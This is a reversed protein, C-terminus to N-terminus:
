IAKHVLFFYSFIIKMSEYHKAKNKLKAEYLKQTEILLVTFSLELFSM